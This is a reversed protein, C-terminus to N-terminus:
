FAHMDKLARALRRYDKLLETVENITLDGPGDVELFHSIPPNLRATRGPESQPEATTNGNVTGLEKCKEASAQVAPPTNSATRGFSRMVNMGALRNLPNLTNGLNRMSEM